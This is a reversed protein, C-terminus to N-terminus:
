TATLLMSVIARRRRQEPSLSLSTARANPARESLRLASGTADGFVPAQLGYATALAALSQGDWLMAANRDPTIVPIAAVIDIQEDTLPTDSTDSTDVPPDTHCACVVAFLAVGVLRAPLKMSARAPSPM